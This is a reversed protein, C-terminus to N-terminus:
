KFDLYKTPDVYDGWMRHSIGFHLHPGTSNGTNGSKAIMQGAKVQDGVKVTAQNLHFYNTYVGNGHNIFIYNGASPDYGVGAVVGDKAAYVNSNEPTALDIGDHHEAGRNGYPSTITYSDPKLPLTFDGRQANVNNDSATTEEYVVKKGVKIKQDTYIMNVDKIQDPNQKQIEEVTTQNDEAIKSLTDGLKITYFIDEERQVRQMHEVASGNYNDYQTLDYAEIIANLKAAYEHDTAYRGTLFETADKYNTTNSKWAGSYMPEKLLKAYDELSEKPSPYKRFSAMTTYMGSGSDEQTSMSVSQGEYSGKIGFFNYNPEQSLSSSGFGTELAAQAIMVSAYLDNEAAIQSAYEAISDVFEQGTMNATIHIEVNSDLSPLTVDSVTPVPTQQSGSNSPRSASQGSSQQPRQQNGGNNSPQPQNGGNNSPQQQNGGNNSPRQTAGGTNAPQQPKSQAPQQASNNTGSNNSAGSTVAQPTNTSSANPTVAQKDVQATAPATSETTASAPAVVEQQPATAVYPVAAQESQVPTVTKEASQEDTKNTKVEKNEKNLNQKASETSNQETDEINSTSLDGSANQDSQKEHQEAGMESAYTVSPAISSTLLTALVATKTLRGKKMYIVGEIKYLGVFNMM